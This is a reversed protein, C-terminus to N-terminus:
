DLFSLHPQSESGSYYTRLLHPYIHRPRAILPQDVRSRKARGRCMADSGDKISFNGRISLCTQMVLVHTILRGHVTFNEFMNESLNETNSHTESHLSDTDLHITSQDPESFCTLFCLTTSVFFGSVMVTAPQKRSKSSGKFFHSSLFKQM